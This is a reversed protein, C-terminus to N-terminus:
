LDAEWAEIHDMMKEEKVIAEPHMVKRSLEQIAIGSTRVFWWYIKFYAHLGKDIDVSKVKLGSEGTTKEMLIYYLDKNFDDLTANLKGTNQQDM